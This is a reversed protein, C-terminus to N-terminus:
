DSFGQICPNCTGGSMEGQGRDGTEVEGLTPLLSTQQASPKDPKDRSAQCGKNAAPFTPEAKPQYPTALLYLGQTESEM